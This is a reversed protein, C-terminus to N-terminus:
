DEAFEDRPIFTPANEMHIDPVRSDANGRFLRAPEEAGEDLPIGGSGSFVASGAKSEHDRFAQQLAHSSGYGDLRLFPLSGM